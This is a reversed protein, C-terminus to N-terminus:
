RRILKEIGNKQVTGIEIIHDFPEDEKLWIEGLKLDILDLLEKIGQLILPINSDGKKYSVM